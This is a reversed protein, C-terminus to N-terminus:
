EKSTNILSLPFQCIHKSIKTNFIIPIIKDEPNEHLFSNIYIVSLYILNDGAIEKSLRLMKPENQESLFDNYLKREKLSLKQFTAKNCFSNIKTRIDYLMDLNENVITQPSFIINAKIYKDNLQFTKICLGLALFGNKFIEAKKRNSLTFLQPKFVTSDELRFANKIEDISLKSRQENYIENLSCYNKDFM